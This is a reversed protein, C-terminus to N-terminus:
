QKWKKPQKDHPRIAELKHIAERSLNPLAFPERGEKMMVYTAEKKQGRTVANVRALAERFSRALFEQKLGNIRFIYTDM